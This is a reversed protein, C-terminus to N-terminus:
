HGRQKLWDRMWAIEAEQADIVKQAFARADPDTGYQLEVKAADVAGQHHPIMGAIFDVDPDGTTPRNMAAMMRNMADAYGQNAAGPSSPPMTMGPMSGDAFAPGALAAVVAIAPFPRM